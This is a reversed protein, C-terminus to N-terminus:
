NFVLYFVLFKLFFIAANKDASDELNWRVMQLVGAVPKQRRVASM